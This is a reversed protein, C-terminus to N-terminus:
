DEIPQRFPYSESAQQQSDIQDATWWTQIYRIVALIETDTLQDGFAPMLTGGNTVLEQLQGDPHHWAHETEDLAPAQDLDAHGEGQSGHCSACKDAYVQQGVALTAAEALPEAPRSQTWVFFVGAAILVAVLLGGAVNRWRRKTAAQARRAQRRESKNHPM